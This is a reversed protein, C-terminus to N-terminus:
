SLKELDIGSKWEEKSGMQEEWTVEKGTYAATRAMMCSVASEVGKAAQNHFQGSTISEVFLRKKEPDAQELNSTFKGTASFGQA